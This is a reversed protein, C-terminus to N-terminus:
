TPSSHGIQKSSNSSPLFTFLSHLTYHYSFIIKMEKELHCFKSFSISTNMGDSTNPYNTAFLFLIDLESHNEAESNLLLQNRHKSKQKYIRVMSNKKQIECRCRCRSSGSNVVTIKSSSSCSSCEDNM